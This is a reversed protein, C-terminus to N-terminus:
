KSKVDNKNGGIVGAEVENALDNLVDRCMKKLTEGDHNTLHPISTRAKGPITLVASKVQAAFATWSESVEDLTLVEGKVQALKIENMQRVLKENALREDALPNRVEESRGAATQRLRGLYADMSPKTLYLNRKPARVLIGKTDLDTLSRLSIGLIVSLDAKTCTEPIWHGATKAKSAM